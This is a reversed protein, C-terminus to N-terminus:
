RLARMLRGDIAALGGAILTMGALAGLTLPEHLALTGLLLASVPVMFTVLLVNTSGALALIRFFLMFALGTCVLGLAAMSAWQSLSPAPGDWPRELAALPLMLAAAATLQGTAISLAPLHGFRRGYRSAFAYIFSALLCAAEALRDDGASAGPGILVVVGAMGLAVGAARGATLREDRAAFHAVLVGFVPTTANLISGLGIGIRGVGFVILSYPVVNNLAALVAFRGWLATSAPLTRGTALMAGWLGAAAIACRGLVITLPGMVPVRLKMFLFSGGWIVSLALLLAWALPPISKPQASM